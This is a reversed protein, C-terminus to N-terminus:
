LNELPMHEADPLSTSLIEMLRLFEFIMTEADSDTILEGYEMFYANKFIGIQESTLIM